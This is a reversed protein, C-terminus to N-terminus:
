RRTIVLLKSNFIAISITSRGMLLMTKGYNHLRKGSPWLTALTFSRLNTFGPQHILIGRWCHCNGKWCSGHGIWCAMCWSEMRSYIQGEKEWHFFLFSWIVQVMMLWVVHLRLHRWFGEWVREIVGFLLFLWAAEIKKAVQAPSPKHLAKKIRIRCPNCWRKPPRFNNFDISAENSKRYLDWMKGTAIQEINRM